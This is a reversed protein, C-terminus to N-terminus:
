PKRFSAVHIPFQEPQRIRLKRPNLRMMGRIRATLRPDVLPSDDAAYHMNQFRATSTDARRGFLPRLLREVIAVNALGGFADPHVQKLRKSLGSSRGRLSFQGGNRGSVPM